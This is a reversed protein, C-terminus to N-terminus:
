NTSCRKSSCRWAASREAGGPAAGYAELDRALSRPEGGTQEIRFTKRRTPM